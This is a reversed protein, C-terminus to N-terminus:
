DVTDDFACPAKAHLHDKELLPNPFVGDQRVEDSLESVEVVDRDPGIRPTCLEMRVQDFRLGVLRDDALRAIVAELVGDKVDRKACRADSGADVGAKRGIDSIPLADHLS